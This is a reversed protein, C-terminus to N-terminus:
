QFRTSACSSEGSLGGPGQNASGCSFSSLMKQVEGSGCEPCQIGKISGSSLVLTEFVKNCKKCTYEFIPM